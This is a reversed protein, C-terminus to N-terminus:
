RYYFCNFFSPLRNKTKDFVIWLSRSQLDPAKQAYSRIIEATKDTSADDHIIVEIPFDTKQILFGDLTQAIFKEHNYTICIVSVVPKM